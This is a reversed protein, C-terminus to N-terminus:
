VTCRQGPHPPFSRQHRQGLNGDAFALPQHRRFAASGDGLPLQGRQRITSRVFSIRFPLLTGRSCSPQRASVAYRPATPSRRSAASSPHPPRFRNPSRFSTLPKSTASASTPPVSSPATASTSSCRAPSSSRPSFRLSPRRSRKGPNPPLTRWSAASLTTTCPRPTPPTSRRPRSSCTPPALPTKRPTSRLLDRATARLRDPDATAATQAQPQTQARTQAPIFSLLLFAALLLLRRM